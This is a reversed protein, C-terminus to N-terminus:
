AAKCSRCLGHLTLKSQDIRAGTAEGIQAIARAPIRYDVDEVTGCRDCRFHAHPPAALEYVAADSGPVSIEDILGLDRLRQIGRYVTSYGIAPRREKARAYVDGTTLHTGHGATRLVEYVTQHNKPLRPTAPANMPCLMACFFIVTFVMNLGQCGARAPTYSIFMFKM